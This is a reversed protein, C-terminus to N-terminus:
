TYSLVIRSELVGKGDKESELVMIGAHCDGIEAFFDSPHSYCSLTLLNKWGREYDFSDHNITACEMDDAFYGGIKCSDGFETGFYEETEEEFMEYLSAYQQAEEESFGNSTYLKNCPYPLDYKYRLDKMTGAEGNNFMIVPQSIVDDHLKIYM